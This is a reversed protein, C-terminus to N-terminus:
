PFEVQPILHSNNHTELDLDIDDSVKIESKNILIKPCAEKPLLYVIQWTDIRCSVCVASVVPPLTWRIRSLGDNIGGGGGGRGWGVFEVEWVGTM